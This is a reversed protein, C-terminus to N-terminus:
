ECFVVDSPDFSPANISIFHVPQSVKMGHVTKAPIPIARGIDILSWHLQDLTASFVGHAMADPETDCRIISCSCRDHYHLPVSGTVRLLEVEVRCGSVQETYRLLAAAKNPLLDKDVSAFELGAATATEVLSMAVVIDSGRKFVLEALGALLHQHEDFFVTASM